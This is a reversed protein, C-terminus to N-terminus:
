KLIVLSLWTRDKSILFLHADEAELLSINMNGRRGINGVLVPWVPVQSSDGLLREVADFRPLFTVVGDNGYTIEVFPEPGDDDREAFMIYRQPVDVAPVRGPVRLGGREHHYLPWREDADERDLQDPRRILRPEYTRVRAFGNRWQWPLVRCSVCVSAHVGAKLVPTRM